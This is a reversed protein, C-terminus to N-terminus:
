DEARGLTLLLCVFFDPISYGDMKRLERQMYDGLIDMWALKLAEVHSAMPAHKWDVRQRVRGVRTARRGANM